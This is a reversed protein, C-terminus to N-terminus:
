PSGSSRARCGRRPDEKEAKEAKVLNTGGSYPRPTPGSVFIRTIDGLAARAPARTAISTVPKVPKAEPAQAAKPRRRRRNDGGGKSTEAWISAVATVRVGRVGHASKIDHYKTPRANRLASLASEPTRPPPPLILITRPPTHCLLRLWVVAPEIEVRRRGIVRRCSLPCTTCCRHAVCAACPERNELWEADHGKAADGHVECKNKVKEWDKSDSKASSRSRAKHTDWESSSSVCAGKSLWQTRGDANADVGEVDGETSRLFHWGRAKKRFPVPPLMPPSPPDAMTAAPMYTPPHRRTSVQEVLRWDLADLGSDEHKPHSPLVPQYHYLPRLLSPTRPDMEPEDLYWERFHGTRAWVNINESDWFSELHSQRLPFRAKWNAETEAGASAAM